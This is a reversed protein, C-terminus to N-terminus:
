SIIPHIHPGFDSVFVPLFTIIWLGLLRSDSGTTGGGFCISASASGSLRVGFLLSGFEISIM